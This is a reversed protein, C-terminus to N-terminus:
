LYKLIVIQINKKESYKYKGMLEKNMVVKNVYEKDAKDIIKDNMLNVEFSDNDITDNNMIMEYVM